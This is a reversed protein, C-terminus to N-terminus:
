ECKLFQRILAKGSDHSLEPHFQTLLINKSKIMALVSKDNEIQCFRFSRPYESLPKKALLGFRHAFYFNTKVRNEIEIANWGLNLKQLREFNLPLLELGKRDGEESSIGLAQMGSCIGIIRSHVIWNKLCSIPFKHELQKVVENYNGVGPIVITGNGRLEKYSSILIIEGFTNFFESLKKINGWGCDIIYFKM